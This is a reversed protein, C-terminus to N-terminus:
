SCRSGIPRSRSERGYTTTLNATCVRLDTIPTIHHSPQHAPATPAPPIVAIGGPKPQTYATQRQQLVAPYGQARSRPCEQSYIAIQPLFSHSLSSSSSSPPSSDDSTHQETTDYECLTIHGHIQADTQGDTQRTHLSLGDRGLKQRRECQLGTSQPTM